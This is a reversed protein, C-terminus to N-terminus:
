RFMGQPGLHACGSVSKDWRSPPLSPFGSKQYSMSSSSDFRKYERKRSFEVDEEQVLALACAEELNSPRQIMVMSKVEDRLGDMFHMAYYLPNTDTEYATLRDVTLSFKEVYDTVSGSQRIHFLQHILAKHQDRGFRDHIL